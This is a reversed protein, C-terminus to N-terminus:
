AARRGALRELRPTIDHPWHHPRWVYVTAGADTLTAIWQQQDPTLRGRDSKLEVYATGGHGCIVLDPFGRDGQIHTRWSGDATRAPRDHHVLLGLLTATDIIAAQLDAESMAPRRATM